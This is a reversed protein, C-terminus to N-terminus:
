RSLMASFQAAQDPKKWDRYLTVLRKLAEITRPDKEGLSGKVGNYGQVLLPEAEPYHKQATLCEGLAGETISIQVDGQPLVKQLIALALEYNQLAEDPRRLNMSDPNGFLDGMHVYSIALSRQAQVNQPDAKVLGKFIELSKARSEFAATLNGMATMANGIKEHAIAVDRIADTNTPYDVVLAERLTLSKRYADLAGSTNGEAELISGIREYILGLRRRTRLATPDSAYLSQLIALSFQYNQM